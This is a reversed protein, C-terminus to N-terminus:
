EQGLIIIILHTLNHVCCVPLLDRVLIRREPVAVKNLQDSEGGVAVRKPVVPILQKERSFTFQRMPNHTVWM